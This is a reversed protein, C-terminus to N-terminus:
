SVGGSKCKTDGKLVLFAPVVQRHMNESHEIIHSMESDYLPFHSMMVFLNPVWPM